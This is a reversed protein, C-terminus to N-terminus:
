LYYNPSSSGVFVISSSFLSSFAIYDIISVAVEVVVVVTAAVSSFFSYVQFLYLKSCVIIPYAAIM